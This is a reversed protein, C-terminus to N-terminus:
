MDLKNVEFERKVAASERRLGLQNEDKKQRNEPKHDEM